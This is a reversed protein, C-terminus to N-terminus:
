SSATASSRGHNKRRPFQIMRVRYNNKEGGCSLQCDKRLSGDNIAADGIRCYHFSLFCRSDTHYLMKGRVISCIYSLILFTNLYSPDFGSSRCLVASCCTYIYEKIGEQAAATNAMLGVVKAQGLPVSHVMTCTADDHPKYLCFTWEGGVRGGM